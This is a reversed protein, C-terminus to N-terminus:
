DAGSTPASITSGRTRLAARAEFRKPITRRRRGVKLTGIRLPSDKARGNPDRRYTPLNELTRRRSLGEMKRLTRSPRLLRQAVAQGQPRCRARGTEGTRRGGRAEM